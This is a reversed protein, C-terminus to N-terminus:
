DEGQSYFSAEVKELRVAKFGLINSYTDSFLIPVFDEDAVIRGSDREAIVDGEEVSEFNESVPIWDEELKPVTGYVKYIEPNSYDTEGKLVDQNILFAKLLKYAQNVAKESKKPGVEVEVGGYHNIGCGSTYSIEVASDVGASRLTDVTEEDSWTFLAFPVPSTSTEHIDLVKINQLEEMMDAALREEHSNSEASGPFSRNLDTDV